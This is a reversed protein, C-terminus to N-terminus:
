RRATFVLSDSINAFGPEFLNFEHLDAYLQTSSGGDLTLAQTCQIPRAHMREALETTTMPTNETVVLLINGAADLGLATREAYGPKLRPIKSNIILRPGAQVAFEVNNPVSNTGAVIHPHQNKIYFVGWWSIPKLPHRQRSNVIRLGLPKGQQDFFGGNVAILAHSNEAFDKISAQNKGLDTAMILDLRNQQPNIRFVHVHSWRSFTIANIQTYEIGPALSRWAAISQIPTLLIFLLFFLSQRQM